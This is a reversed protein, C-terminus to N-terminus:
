QLAQTDDTEVELTGHWPMSGTQKNYPCYAVYGNLCLIDSNPHDLTITVSTRCTDASNACPLASSFDMIGSNTAHGSQLGNDLVGTSQQSTGVNIYVFLKSYPFFYGTDPNKQDQQGPTFRVKLNKGARVTVTAATYGFAGARFEYTAAQAGSITSVSGDSSASQSGGQASTGDGYYYHGTGHGTGYSYGGCGTGFVLVLLAFTPVLILSQLRNPKKM